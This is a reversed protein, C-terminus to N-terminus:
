SNRRNTTVGHTAARSAGTDPDSVIAAILRNLHAEQTFYSRFQRSANRSQLAFLDPQSALRRVAVVIAAPDNCPVLFGNYGDVVQEPIGRHRTAIVPTAAAMAEIISIPQGEWPYSTPLVLVHAAHLLRIKESGHVVGHYTVHHTLGWMRIAERFQKEAAMASLSATGPEMIDVFEGCYDCYFQEGADLLQRCAELLHRYGKSPVMNSLYLLRIPGNAPLTKQDLMLASDGVPLGNRVVVVRRGADPVFRFQTRLLEGLVVITDSRSFTARIAARFRRSSRLYFQRFGGGHLHVVTRRRLAYACWLFIADRVFGLRSTSITMYVHRVRPLAALYRMLIGATSWTRRMRLAGPRDALGVAALNVVRCPLGQRAFGQLLTEFAVSIGSVRATTRHGVLLTASAGRPAASFDSEVPATAETSISAM